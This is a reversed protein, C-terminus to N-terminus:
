PIAITYIGTAVPSSVGATFAAATITIQGSAGTPVTCTQGCLTGSTPTPTNGNTTYYVTTGPAGTLTVTQAAAYAGAPPSM